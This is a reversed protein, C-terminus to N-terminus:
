LEWDAHKYERIHLITVPDAKPLQLSWFLHENQLMLCFSEQFFCCGLLWWWLSRIIGLSLIEMKKISSSILRDWVKASYLSHVHSHAWKANVACKRNIDCLDRERFELLCSFGHPQCWFADNSFGHYVSIRYKSLLSFLVFALYGFNRKTNQQM